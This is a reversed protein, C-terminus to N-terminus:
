EKPECYNAYLSRGKFLMESAAQKSARASERDKFSVFAISAESLVKANAVSGFQSFFELLEADTTSPEVNKVILNLYMMSKKFQYTKKAVEMQRQEKTKSESVYLKPLSGDPKNFAEKAKLADEWNKFCVFGFGRSKGEADKM